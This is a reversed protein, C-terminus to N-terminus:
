TSPAPAAAAVYLGCDYERVSYGPREGGSGASPERSSRADSSTGGGSSSSPPEPPPAPPAGGHSGHDHQALVVRAPAPTVLLYATASGTLRRDIIVDCGVAQAEALAAGTFDAETSDSPLRVRIVGVKRFSAAPPHLACVDTPLGRSTPNFSEDSRVFLASHCGALLVAALAAAALQRM